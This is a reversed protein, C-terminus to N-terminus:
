SQTEHTKARKLATILDGLNKYYVPEKGIVIKMMKPQVFNSSVDNKTMLRAYYAPKNDAALQVQLYIQYDFVQIIKVNHM